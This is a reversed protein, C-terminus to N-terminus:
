VRVRQSDSARVVSSHRGKKLQRFSALPLFSSPRHFSPPFPHGRNSTSITSGPPHSSLPTGKCEPNEPQNKKKPNSRQMQGNSEPRGNSSRTCADQSQKQRRPCCFSSLFLHRILRGYPCQLFFITIPTLVVKGVVAHIYRHRQTGVGNIVLQGGSRGGTSEVAYLSARTHVRM